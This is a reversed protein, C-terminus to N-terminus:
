EIWRTWDDYYDLGLAKGHVTNWHRKLYVSIKIPDTPLAEPKMFLRQRAMFVNYRLDYVLREAPPHIKREYERQSVIGLLTANEWISDGNAWTDDHTAPEMQILGLAPGNVQKLYHGRRSEHAMIQMIAVVAEESYGRPIENLTPEVVYKKLHKYM